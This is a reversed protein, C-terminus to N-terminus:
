RAVAWAPQPFRIREKIGDAKLRREFLKKLRTYCPNRDRETMARGKLWENFDVNAALEMLCNRFQGKKLAVYRANAQRHGELVLRRWMWMCMCMNLSGWLKQSEIDRGWVEFMMTLCEVLQRASDDTMDMALHTASISPLGPTDRASGTWARMVMSMSLIPSTNAHRRIMDYGVFPAGSRVVKLSPTSDQLGRLFDDPRMKIINSNSNVFETAMEAMNAFEITRIDALGEAIESLRFAEIRHQGDVIYKTTADGAISGLTIVGPIVGGNARIEDAIHRVKDNIRLPRQFPPVRWNAGMTPSILATEMKARHVLKPSKIPSINPM